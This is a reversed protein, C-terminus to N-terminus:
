HHAVEEPLEKEGPLGPRMTQLNFSYGEPLVHLTADTIALIEDEGVDAANSHSVRGDFVM